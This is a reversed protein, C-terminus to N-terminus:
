IEPHWFRYKAVTKAPIETILIRQTATLLAKKM